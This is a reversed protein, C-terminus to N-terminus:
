KINSVQESYDRYGSGVRIDMYNIGDNYESWFTPFSIDRDKAHKKMMQIMVREANDKDFGFGQFKFYGTDLEALYM